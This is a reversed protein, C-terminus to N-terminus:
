FFKKFFNEFIIKIEASFMNAVYGIIGVIIYIFANVLKSVTKEMNMGLYELFHKPSLLIFRIWFLPNFCEKFRKLFIAETTKFMRQYNGVARDNLEPFNRFLSVTLVQLRGYPAPEYITCYTDKIGAKKFLNIVEPAKYIIKDNSNKLFELYSAYFKKITFYNSLNDLIRYFFFFIFIFILNNM